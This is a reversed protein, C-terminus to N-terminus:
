EYRRGSNDLIFVCYYCFSSLNICINVQIVGLHELVINMMDRIYMGRKLKQIFDIM